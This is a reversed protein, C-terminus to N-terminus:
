LAEKFAPGLCIGIAEVTHPAAVAVDGKATVQLDFLGHRAFSELMHNLFPLPADIRREGSGALGLSLALQTENTHRTIRSRRMLASSDVEDTLDAGASPRWGTSVPATTRGVRFTVTAKM